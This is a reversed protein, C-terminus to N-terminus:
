SGTYAILSYYDKQLHSLHINLLLTLLHYPVLDDVFKGEMTMLRLIIGEEKQPYLYNEGAKSITSMHIFFHAEM